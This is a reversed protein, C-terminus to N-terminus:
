VLIHIDVDKQKYVVFQVRFFKDVNHLANNLVTKNM